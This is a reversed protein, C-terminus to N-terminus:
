GQLESVGHQAALQRPELTASAESAGNQGEMESRPPIAISYKELTVGQGSLESKEPANM